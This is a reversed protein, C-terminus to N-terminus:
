SSALPWSLIFCAGGISSNAISVKGGHWQMIRKVIALGLGYGSTAKEKNELRVFSQFAREREAEPIGPGDDEVTVLFHNEKRSLVIHISAKAYRLANHLLNILVREMLQWDCNVMLDEDQPIIKIAIEGSEIEDVISQCFSLFDGEAMDLRQESQDFSAYNLFESVFKDLAAVDERVSLLQERMQQADETEAAMELAFKMRALPTRLEHSVAYTMEKRSALLEKIRISMSNFADALAQVHSGRRLEVLAAAGDKGVLRTQKELLNLDRSLPWVWIYIVLALGLYFSVLLIFYVSRNRDPDGSQKLSLVRQTAAMRKYIILDGHQDKVSVPKGELILAGPETSSLDDLHYVRLEITLERNLNALEEELSADDVTALEQELVHLLGQEYDSLVPDPNYAEWVADMGWGIILIAAVIIIYLSTFARRMNNNGLRPM